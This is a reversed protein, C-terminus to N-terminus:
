RGRGLRRLLLLLLWLARSEGEFLRYHVVTHQWGHAVSGLWDLEREKAVHIFGRGVHSQLRCEHGTFHGTMEAADCLYFEVSHIALM